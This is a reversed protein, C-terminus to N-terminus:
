IGFYSIPKKFASSGLSPLELGSYPNAYKNTEFGTPSFTPIKFTPEQAPTYYKNIAQGAIDGLGKFTDGIGSLIDKERMGAEVGTKYADSGAGRLADAKSKIKSTEAAYKERQRFQEDQKNKLYAENRMNVNQRNIEDRRMSNAENFANIINANSQERSYASQEAGTIAGLYQNLAQNRTGEEQAAIDLDQLALNQQIDQNAQNIAALEAGSSVIGRNRLNRIASETAGKGSQIARLKAKEYAARGAATSGVKSLTGLDSLAQKKKAMLDADTKAFTPATYDMYQYMEPKYNLAAIEPAQITDILNMAELNARNQAERAKKQEEALAKNGAYGFGGGLLGGVGSAIGGLVPAALM